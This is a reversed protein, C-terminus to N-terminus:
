SCVRIRCYCGGQTGQFSRLVTTGIDFYDLHEFVHFFLHFVPRILFFYSSVKARQKMFFSKIFFAQDISHPVSYIGNGIRSCFDEFPEYLFQGM